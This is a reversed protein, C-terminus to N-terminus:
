AREAILDYDTHGFNKFGTDGCRQFHKVDERVMFTTATGCPPILGRVKLGIFTLAAECRRSRNLPTVNRACSVALM